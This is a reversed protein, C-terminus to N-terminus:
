PFATVTRGSGSGYGSGTGPYAGYGSGSGSGSGSGPYAGFGSGSGAGPRSGIGSGSGPRSGLGAGQGVRTAAAETRGVSFSAGDSGIATPVALKQGSNGLMTIAQAHAQSLNVTQGNQTASANTFSINGFNDLPLVGYGASPAEVVWEASSHSSTYRTSTHYTKGSTNNTFDISWNSASQESITVTVSDGPRVAFPVPRSAQPLTEVWASYQVRGSGGDTEQTGAQILDHSSVGGIGVWTAGVGAAGNSSVQPVTWTGTVTTFKGGTAAYGSWNHSTDQSPTVGPRPAPSTSTGPTQPTSPRTTGPTQGPTTTVGPIGGDGPITVFPFPFGPFSGQSPFPNAGNPQTSAGSGPTSANNPHDDSQIKWAGNDQVLSYVNTDRSVQTSGDDTHVAWTEYTTANASNGNVTIPGWEVRMLQIDTVGSDVMDQNNQQLEGLHDATATDAMVSSDGSAIAKVQEANAQQIVQQIAASVQDTGSQAAQSPAMVPSRALALNASGGAVVGVVLAGALAGVRLTRSM